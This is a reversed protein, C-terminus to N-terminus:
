SKKKDQKEKIWAEIINYASEEDIGGYILNEMEEVYKEIEAVTFPSNIIKQIIQEETDEADMTNIIALM